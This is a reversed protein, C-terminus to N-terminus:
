QEEAIEEAKRGVPASWRSSPSARLSSRVHDHLGAACAGIAEERELLANQVQSAVKAEQLVRATIRRELHNRVDTRLQTTLEGTPPIVKGAYPEFKRDLWELFQPTTMANLEIRKTQLWSRWPQEVYDAVPASKDTERIVDEIQLGMAIGEEPELGLNVIHVNRAPRAKTGETLSQHILTGYADADHLSFFWLDEDTDGLLDIVDRAARSSFGKSTMLACDHREPWKADRLIPFFGEKEAYLIKNFTWRPRGYAEVNLTGLPIEEGLHPHYIVGRPDRYMGPIDGHEAEYETIVNTFWSYKPEVGMAAIAHPRIAYYLQRLSFRYQGGGSAKEIAEDLRGLIADKQTVRGSDGYARAVVQAHRKARTIAKGAVEVIQSTLPHLNPAKGDSTIPMFPTEINLCLNVGKRGVPFRRNMGCGWLSLDGKAHRANFPAITPTRNVFVNAYAEDPDISEAWAELVVPLMTPAAGSRGPMISLSTSLRAYGSPLSELPGVQGLRNPSVLGVSAKLTAHLQATEARSLSRALRGKHNAAIKGAKAGTCGDFESVLDRVTREGSAQILEYFSDSDYWHPSTKGAYSPGGKALEIADVVWGFPDDLPISKGLFVEVRTGSEDFKGIPTASTHGTELDPSLQLRRGRTSVFLSGGSALVAGAVVRLGNGLAGRSPRRLLKSSSLPRRVSFLRAIAEDDGPIGSGQDWILMGTGASDRKILTANCMGAADLANDALEKAVVAALQSTPVGAKQGLGDLTRFLTWDEREFM